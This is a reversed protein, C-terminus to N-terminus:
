PNQVLRVPILNSGGGTIVGGGSSNGGGGGGAGGCGSGGSLNGCSTASVIITDINDFNGQHKIDKIFLQMYGVVTVAGGGSQMTGDYVPVSVLAGSQSITQGNTAFPNGAGATLTCSGNTCSISDVASGGNANCGQGGYTILDCVAQNNPGVKFGNLTCLQTGCTIQNAACQTVSQAWSTAGQGGSCNSPPADFAVELWQSPVAQINGATQLHLQWQEGVISNGNPMTSGQFFYGATTPCNPNAPATHVPDCNPVFFPKLCSACFTTSSGGPNYAEATATASISSGASLPLFFTKAPAQVTVTILPDSTSGGGATFSTSSVTPVQSFVLNRQVAQTAQATASTEVNASLCSSDLSCGQTFVMAGALAGSDAARQAESKQLYLATLDIALGSACLIMVMAIAVMVLTAGRERSTTERRKSSKNAM